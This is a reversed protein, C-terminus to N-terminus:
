GRPCPDLRHDRGQEFFSLVRLARLTNWRSPSGPKEMIFHQQGPHHAQVPWSGDARQKKRLVELAPILREDWLLESKRLYDLAHLINYHWRDPYCIKLFDPRIIDGTRDSLFLKHCLIFEQAKKEASLLEESRYTYGHFSYERIGECVLLTSHLSSHVAGSRNKRCNFGGDSMVQSLIFDVVSQLMAEPAQFYTGYNLFMGNLCVDSQPIDPSPNMGGDPSKEEKLLKLVIEQASPINRPPELNRLDLLSYHTSTWKPQYFGRGWHGDTKQKSLLLAGWGETIIRSQLTALVEPDSGLLDRHVQYQLSVDGALLWKILEAEM